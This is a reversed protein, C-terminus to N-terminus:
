RTRPVQGIRVQDHEGDARWQLRWVGGLVYHGSYQNRSRCRPQSDPEFCRPPRRQHHQTWRRHIPKVCHGPRKASVDVQTETSFNDVGSGPTGGGVVGLGSVGPALTVLSIFSRGALPLSSLSQTELTVQTRTEATNMLPAEATVTMAETAMGVKLSIPVNLNQNTQLTVTAETKTFGKAEATITYAGPALSLFRYNGSEDSTATASVKTAANVLQLTANAVGAGSPDEVVGQINGTFQAYSAGCMFLIAVLSWGSLRVPLRKEM